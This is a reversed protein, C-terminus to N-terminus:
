ARLHKNLGTRAFAQNRRKVNSNWAAIELRLAARRPADAERKERMRQQVPSPESRGFNPLFTGTTSSGLGFIAAILNSANV